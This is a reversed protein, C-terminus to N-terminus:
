SKITDIYRAIDGLQKNIGSYRLLVYNLELRTLDDASKIFKAYYPASVEKDEDLTYFKGKVVKSRFSINLHPDFM